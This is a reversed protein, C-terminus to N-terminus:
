LSRNDKSAPMAVNLSTNIEAPQDLKDLSFRAEPANTAYIRWGLRRRTAELATDLRKVEIMLDLHCEIRDTKGAYGRVHRQTM